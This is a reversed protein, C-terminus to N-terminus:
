STVSRQAEEEEEEKLINEIQPLSNKLWATVFNGNAEVLAAAYRTGKMSDYNIERFIQLQLLQVRIFNQSM